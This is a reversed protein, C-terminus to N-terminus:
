TYGQSNALFLSRKMVSTCGLDGNDTSSNSRQLRSLFCISNFSSVKQPATLRLM